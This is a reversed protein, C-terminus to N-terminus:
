NPISGSLQLFNPALQSGGPPASWIVIGKNPAPPALDEQNLTCFTLLHHGYRFDALLKTINATEGKRRHDNFHIISILHM